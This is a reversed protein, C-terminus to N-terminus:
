VWHLYYEEKLVKAQHGQFLATRLLKRKLNPLSRGDQNIEILCDIYFSWMEESKLKKVAILYVDNCSTIRDRRSNDETCDVEMTSEKSVPNPLGQLERRAMTDWMLPENIYKKVLDSFHYNKKNYM